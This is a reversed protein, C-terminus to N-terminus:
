VKRLEHFRELFKLPVKDSNWKQIYDDNPLIENLYLATQFQGYSLPAFTDKASCSKSFGITSINAWYIM